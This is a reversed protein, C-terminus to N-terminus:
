FYLMRRVVNGPMSSLRRVFDCLKRLVPGQDLEGEKSVKLLEWGVAYRM